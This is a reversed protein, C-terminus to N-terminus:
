KGSLERRSQRHWETGELRHCKRPTLTSRWPRQRSKYPKNTPKNALRRNDVRPTSVLPWCPRRTDLSSKGKSQDWNNQLLRRRPIQPPFARRHFSRIQSHERTSTCNWTRRRHFHRFSYSHQQSRNPPTTQGRRRGRLIRSAPQPQQTREANRHTTPNKISQKHDVKKFFTRQSSHQKDSTTM